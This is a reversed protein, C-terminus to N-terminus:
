EGSGSRMACGVLMPKGGEKAVGSLASEYASQISLKTGSLLIHTEVERLGALIAALASRKEDSYLSPFTKTCISDVQQAEDVAVFALRSQRWVSRLNVSDITCKLSREVAELFVDIGPVVKSSFLQLALWHKAQMGPCTAAATQLVLARALLIRKVYDVIVTRAQHVNESEAVLQPIDQLLRMLDKSGFSSPGGAPVLYVGFQECSKEFLWRTKGTGSASVICTLSAPPTTGFLLEVAGKESGNTLSNGVLSFRHLEVLREELRTLLFDPKPVSSTWDQKVDARIASTAFPNAADLEIDMLEYAEPSIPFDLTALYPRSPSPSPSERLKNVLRTLSSVESEATEVADTAILVAKNATVLDQKAREIADARNSAEAEKLKDEGRRRREEAEKLEVKAQDREAKAITLDLNVNELEAKASGASNIIIPVVGSGSPLALNPVSVLPLSSRIEETERENWKAFVNRKEEVILKRKSGAGVVTPGPSSAMINLWNQVVEFLAAARRLADNNEDVDLYM